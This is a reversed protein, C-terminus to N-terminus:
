RTQRIFGFQGALQTEYTESNDDGFLTTEPYSWEDSQINKLESFILKGTISCRSAKNTLKFGFTIHNIKAGLKAGDITIAIECEGRKKKSAL